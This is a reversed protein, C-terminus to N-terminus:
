YSMHCYPLNMTNYIQWYPQCVKSIVYELSERNQLPPFFFVFLCVLWVGVVQQTCLCFLYRKLSLNITWTLITVSCDTLPQWFPEDWDYRTFTFESNSSLTIPSNQAWLVFLDSIVSFYISHYASNKVASISKTIPFHCCFWLLLVTFGIVITPKKM